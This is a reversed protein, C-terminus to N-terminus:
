VNYPYIMYFHYFVVNYIKLTSIHGKTAFIAVTKLNREMGNHILQEINQLLDESQGFAVFGCLKV